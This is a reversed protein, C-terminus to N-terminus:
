KPKQTGITWNTRQTILLRCCARTVTWRTFITTRTLRARTDNTLGFCGYNWSLIRQQSTQNLMCEGYLRYVSRWWRQTPRSCHCTRTSPMTPCIASSRRSAREPSTNTTSETDLKHYVVRRVSYTKVHYFTLVARNSEGCRPYQNFKFRNAHIDTPELPDNVSHRIKGLKQCNFLSTLRSFPRFETPVSFLHFRRTSLPHSLDVKKTNWRRRRWKAIPIQGGFQM